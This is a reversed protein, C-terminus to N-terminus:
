GHGIRSPSPPSGAQITTVSTSRFPLDKWFSRHGTTIATMATEQYLRIQDAGSRVFARCWQCSDDHSVVATFLDPEVEDITVDADCDSCVAM